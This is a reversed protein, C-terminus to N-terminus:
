VRCIQRDHIPLIFRSKKDKLYADIKIEIEKLMDAGTTNDM